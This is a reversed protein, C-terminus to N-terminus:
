GQELYRNGDHDDGKQAILSRGILIKGPNQIGRFAPLKQQEPLNKDQRTDGDTKEAPSTQNRRHPDPKGSPICEADPEDPVHESRDADSSKPAIRDPYKVNGPFVGGLFSSRQRRHKDIPDAPQQPQKGQCRQRHQDELILAM